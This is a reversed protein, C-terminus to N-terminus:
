RGAVAQDTPIAQRRVASRLRGIPSEDIPEAKDKGAAAGADDGPNAGADENASAEITAVEAPDTDHDDSATADTREADVDWEDPFRELDQDGAADRWTSSRDATESFWRAVYAAAAAAGIGLVAYLAISKKSM